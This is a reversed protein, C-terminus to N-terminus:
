KSSILPRELALKKLTFGNTQRELVLYAPEELQYEKKIFDPITILISGNRNGKWTKIIVPEKTVM